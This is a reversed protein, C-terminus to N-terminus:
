ALVAKKIKKAHALLGLGLLGSMGSWAAAPLPVAVPIEKFSLNQKMCYKGYGPNANIVLDSALPNQGGEGWIATDGNPLVGGGLNITDHASDISENTFPPADMGNDFAGPQFSATRTGGVLFQFGKWDSGSENTVNEDQIVIKPSANASLQTFTIVLGETSFFTPDKELTLLDGGDSFLTISSPFSIKWGDVVNGSHLLVAAHSQTAGFGLVAAAAAAILSKNMRSM